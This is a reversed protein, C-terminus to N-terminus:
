RVHSVPCLRREHRVSHKFVQVGLWAGLARWICDGSDGDLVKRLRYRIPLRTLVETQLAKLEWRRSLLGYQLRAQNASCDAVVLPVAAESVVSQSQPLRGSRLAVRATAATNSVRCKLRPVCRVARTTV